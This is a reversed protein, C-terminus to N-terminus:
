IFHEKGLFIKYMFAGCQEKAWGKKRIWWVYISVRFSQIKIFLNNKWIDEDLNERFKKVRM